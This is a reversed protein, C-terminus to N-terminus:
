IHLFASIYCSTQIVVTIIDSFHWSLISLKSLLCCDTISQVFLLGTCGRMWYCCHKIGESINLYLRHLLFQVSSSLMFFFGCGFERFQKSAELLLNLSHWVKNLDKKWSVRESIEGSSSNPTAATPSPSTVSWYPLARILSTFSSNGYEGNAKPSVRTVLALDKQFCEPPCRLKLCCFQRLLPFSNKM